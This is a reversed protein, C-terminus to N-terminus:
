PELNLTYPKNLTQPELCLTWPKPNLDQQPNPTQSACNFNLLIGKLFAIAGTEGASSESQGLTCWLPKPSLTKPQMNTEAVLSSRFCM